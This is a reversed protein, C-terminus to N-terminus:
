VVMYSVHIIGKDIYTYVHIRIYTCYLVYVPKFSLLFYLSSNTLYCAVYTYSVPFFDICQSLHSVAPFFLCGGMSERHHHGWVGWIIINDAEITFLFHSITTWRSTIIPLLITSSLAVTQVSSIYFFFFFFIEHIIETTM